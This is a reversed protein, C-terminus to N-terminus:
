ALKKKINIRITNKSEIKYKKQLKQLFTKFKIKTLSSFAKMFFHNTLKKVIM